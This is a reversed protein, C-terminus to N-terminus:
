GTIEKTFNNTIEKKFNNTIEKTFDNIIDKTFDNSNGASNNLLYVKFCLNM